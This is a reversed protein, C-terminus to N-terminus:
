SWSRLDGPREEDEFLIIDNFRGSSGGAFRFASAACRDTQLLADCAQHELAKAAEMSLAVARKDCKSLVTCMEDRIHDRSNVMDSDKSPDYTGFKKALWIIIQWYSMIVNPTFNLTQMIGLLKMVKGEEPPIIDPLLSIIKRLMRAVNKLTSYRSKGVLRKWFIWRDPKDIHKMMYPIVHAYPV